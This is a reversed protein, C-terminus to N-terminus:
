VPKRDCCGKSRQRRLGVTQGTSRSILRRQFREVRQHVMVQRWAVSRVAAGCASCALVWVLGHAYGGQLHRSFAKRTKAMGRSTAQERKPQRRKSQICANYRLATAMSEAEAPNDSVKTVTHGWACWSEVGGHHYTLRKRNCNGPLVLDGRASVTPTVARHGWLRCMTDLISWARNSRPNWANHVSKRAHTTASRTSPPPLDARASRETADMPVASPM